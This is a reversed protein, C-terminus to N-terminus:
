QTRNELAKEGIGIFCALEPVTKTGERLAPSDGNGDDLSENCSNPNELSSDPPQRGLAFANRRLM